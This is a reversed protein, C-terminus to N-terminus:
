ECRAGRWPTLGLSKGSNLGEVVWAGFLRAQSIRRECVEKLKSHHEEKLVTIVDFPIVHIRRWFVVM